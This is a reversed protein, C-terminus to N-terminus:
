FSQKKQLSSYSCIKQDYMSNNIFYAIEIPQSFSNDNVIKDGFNLGMSITM